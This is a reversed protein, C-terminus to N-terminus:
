VITQIVQHVTLKKKIECVPINTEVTIGNGDSTFVINEDTATKYTTIDKLKELTEDHQHGYDNDTKKV